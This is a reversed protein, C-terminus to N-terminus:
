HLRAQPLRSGDSRQGEVNTKCIRCSWGRGAIWELPQQESKCDNCRVLIAGKEAM